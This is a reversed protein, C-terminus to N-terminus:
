KRGAIYYAFGFIRKESEVGRVNKPFQYVLEREFVRGFFM